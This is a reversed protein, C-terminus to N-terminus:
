HDEGVKYHIFGTNRYKEEVKWGVEVKISDIV